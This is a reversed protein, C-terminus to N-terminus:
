GGIASMPRDPQVFAETSIGHSAQKTWTADMLFDAVRQEDIAGRLLPMLDWEQRSFLCPRVRGEATIRLRGCEGCFPRTVPAIVGVSGPAGDAFVYEEATAGPDDRGIPVLPYVEAVRRIIEAAPVCRDRDWSRSADLPMFEIFRVTVGLDRALAALPVVQSENEGRVVVANVKTDPFLRGAWAIHGLLRAPTSGSRSIRTFVDDDVADLSITVRSLGARRWAQLHDRTALHGNTTMTVEPIGAEVVAAIISELDGRLTPEGGTLRVTRVHLRRLVRCLAGIQDITLTSHPPLVQTDPEMCYVCRFNCRDTLSLRVDTIMRGHSDILRDRASGGHSARLPSTPPCASIVPLPHM